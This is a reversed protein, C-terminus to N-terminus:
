KRARKEGKEIDDFQDAFEAFSLVSYRPISPAKNIKLLTRHKENHDVWAMVRLVMRKGLPKGSNNLKEYNLALHRIVPYHRELYRGLVKYQDDLDM